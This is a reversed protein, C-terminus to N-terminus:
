SQNQDQLTFIIPVIVTSAIPTEGRRAPTFRWQRIAEIASEDLIEYGSSREIEVAASLGEESVQVKLTVTGQWGMSRALSPYDPKPNEAYDANMDAEIFPEIKTPPAIDARTATATNQVVPQADFVQQKPAFEAPEQVVPTKKLTPKPQKKKPLPKIKAPAPPPPPPPAVKPKPASVPIIAIEMVKPQAPATQEVSLWILGLGHLLVVLISSLALMKVTRQKTLKGFMGNSRRSVTKTLNTDSSASINDFWGGEISPLNHQRKEANNGASRGSEHFSSPQILGQQNAFQFKIPQFFRM